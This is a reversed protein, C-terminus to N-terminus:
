RGGFRRRRRSQAAFLGDGLVGAAELVEVRLSAGSAAGLLEQPRCREIEVPGSQLLRIIAVTSM